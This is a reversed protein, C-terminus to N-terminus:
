GSESPSMTRGRREVPVTPIGAARAAAECQRAGRSHNYIFAVCEDAGLSVMYENRYFGQMPCITWAERPGPRNYAAQDQRRHGPKCNRRCPDHWRAPWVEPELVPRGEKRRRMAWRHAMRDGGRAGGHVILLQRGAAEAALLYDDMTDWVVHEMVAPWARSATVLIRLPEM